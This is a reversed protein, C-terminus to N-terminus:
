RPMCTFTAREPELLPCWNLTLDRATALPVTGSTCSRAAIARVAEATTTLGNYCVSVRTPPEGAAGDANTPSPAVTEYPPLLRACGAAAFPLLLLVLLAFSAARRM